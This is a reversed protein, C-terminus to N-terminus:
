DDKDHCSIEFKFCDIYKPPETQDLIWGADVENCVLDSDTVYSLYQMKGIKISDVPHKHTIEWFAHLGGNFYTTLDPRFIMGNVGYFQEERVEFNRQLWEKLVKKAYRHFYSELFTNGNGNEEM